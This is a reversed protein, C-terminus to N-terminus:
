NNFLIYANLSTAIFLWVVYPLLLWFNISFISSFKFLMFVLLILLSSIVILSLFVQHQNFFTYNWSVNLILQILFFVLILKFSGANDMYLNRMYISFTIMILSWAVGFVFGPPTWPAINLNQYWNDTPGAGMLKSGVFLAGFNVLLFIILVYTSKM